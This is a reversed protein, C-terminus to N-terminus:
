KVGELFIERLTNKDVVSAINEKKSLAKQIREDISNTVILDTYRVNSKTGIRHSRDEAQQRNAYSYGNAYFFVETAATLTLGSCISDQMVIVRIRGEQFDNVKQQRKIPNTVEGNIFDCTIGLNKIADTIAHVSRRFHSWIICQKGNKVLPELMELLVKLKPDEGLEHYKREGTSEDISGLWGCVIQQLRMLRTIVLEASVSEANELEVVAEKAMQNYAKRLPEPLDIYVNNYIKEPLNVADEKKLRITFDDTLKRFHDENKHGVIKYSMYGGMILYQAKFQTFTSILDPRIFRYQAYLDGFSNLIPTGSLIYIRSDPKNKSIDWLVKTIKASKEKIMQSEDAVIMEYSLSKILQHEIRVSEYNAIHPSPCNTLLHQRREAEIVTPTIQPWWKRFEELWNRRLYAPCVILVKTLNLRRMVEIIALTKGLGPELFIAARKNKLMLDVAFQQHNYLSTM